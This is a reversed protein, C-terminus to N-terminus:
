IGVLFQLDMIRDFNALSRSVTRYQQEIEDIFRPLHVTPSEIVGRFVVDVKCLPHQFGPLSLM